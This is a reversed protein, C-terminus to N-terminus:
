DWFLPNYNASNCLSIAQHRISAHAMEGFFQQKMQIGSLVDFLYGLLLV